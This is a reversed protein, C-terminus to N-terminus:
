KRRRSAIIRAIPLKGICFGLLLGLFSGIVAEHTTLYKLLSIALTALSICLFTMSFILFQHSRQIRIKEIRESPFFFREEEPKGNITTIQEKM